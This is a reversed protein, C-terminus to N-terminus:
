IIKEVCGININRLYGILDSLTFNIDLDNSIIVETSDGLIKKIQKKISDANRLALDKPINYSKIYTKNPDLGASESDIIVIIPHGAQAYRKVINISALHNLQLSPTM